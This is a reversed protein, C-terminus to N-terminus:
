ATAPTWCGFHSLFGVFAVNARCTACQVPGRVPPYLTVVHHQRHRQAMEVPLLLLHKFTATKAEDEEASLAKSCQVANSDYSLLAENCSIELLICSDTMLGDADHRGVILLQRALRAIPQELTCIKASCPLLLGEFSPCDPVVGLIVELRSKNFLPAVSPKPPAAALHDVTRNAKLNNCSTRYSLNCLTHECLRSVAPPRLAQVPVSLVRVKKPLLWLLLDAKAVLLTRMAAM